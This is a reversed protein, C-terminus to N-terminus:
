DGDPRDDNASCSEITMMVGALNRCLDATMLRVAKVVFAQDAPCQGILLDWATNDMAKTNAKVM